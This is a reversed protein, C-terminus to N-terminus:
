VSLQLISLICVGGRYSDYEKRHNSPYYDRERYRARDDDRRKMGSDRYNRERDYDRYHGSGRDRSFDRGSEHGYQRGSEGGSERPSEHADAPDRGRRRQDDFAYTRDLSRGWFDEASSAGGLIKLGPEAM